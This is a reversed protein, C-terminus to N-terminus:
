KSEEKDKAFHILLKMSLYIVGIVIFIGAMGLGMIELGQIM